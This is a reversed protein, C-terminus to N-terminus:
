SASQNYGNYGLGKLLNVTECLPLGVIGSYSGSIWKVLTEGLGQIAFGGAAGIGHDTNLYHQIEEHSFRKFKVNSVVLKTAIKEITGNKVKIAAIATYIDIRKGSFFLLYKEVMEKTEAKDFIKNKTGVVTDSALIFADDKYSSAVLMAKKEALRLALQLPKEKVLPRENIDPSIIQDPYIAINQLLALRRPSSSALILMQKESM